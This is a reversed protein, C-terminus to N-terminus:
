GALFGPEVPGLATRRGRSKQYGPMLAPAAGDEPWARDVCFASGSTRRCPRLGGNDNTRVSSGIRRCPLGIRGRRVSAALCSATSWRRSQARVGRTRAADLEALVVGEGDEERVALVEGWPGVAM